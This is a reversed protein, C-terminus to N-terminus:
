FTKVWPVILVNYTLFALTNEKQNQLKRQLKNILHHIFVSFILLFFVKKNLMKYDCLTDM